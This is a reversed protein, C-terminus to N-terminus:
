CEASISQLHLAIWAASSSGASCTSINTFKLDCVQTIVGRLQEGVISCHATVPQTLLYMDLGGARDIRKLADTTVHLYIKRELAESYLAQYQVNPQWDRKTRCRPITLVPRAYQVAPLHRCYLIV